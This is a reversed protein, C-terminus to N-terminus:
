SAYYRCGALLRDFEIIESINGVLECYTRFMDSIICNANLIIRHKNLFFFFRKLNPRMHDFNAM